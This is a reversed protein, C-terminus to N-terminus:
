SLFIEPVNECVKNLQKASETELVMDLLLPIYKKTLM